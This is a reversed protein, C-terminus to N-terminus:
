QTMPEERVWSGYASQWSSAQQLAAGGADSLENSRDIADIQAQTLAQSQAASKKAQKNAGLAGFASLALQGGALVTSLSVM